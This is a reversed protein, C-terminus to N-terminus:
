LEGINVLEDVYAQRDKVAGTRVYRDCVQKQFDDLDGYTKKSQTGRKSSPKTTTSSSGVPSEKAPTKKTQKPQVTLEENPYQEKLESVVHELMDNYSVQPNSKVFKDAEADALSKLAPNKVYWPNDAVFRIFLAQNQAQTTQTPQPAVEDAKKAEEQRIETDIEAVAAYDNNELATTKATNLERLVRAREDERIKSTLKTVYDLQANLNQIESKQNKMARFYEGRELFVDADRWDSPNGDWEDKDVWGKLRAAEEIADLVDGSGEDEVVAVDKVVLQKVPDKVEVDKPDAALPRPATDEFEEVYQSDLAM